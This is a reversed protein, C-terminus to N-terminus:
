FILYLYSHVQFTKGKPTVECKIPNKQDVKALKTEKSKFIITDLIEWLLELDWFGFNLM